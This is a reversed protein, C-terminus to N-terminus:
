CSLDCLAELQPFNWRERPELAVIADKAQPAGLDMLELPLPEQSRTSYFVRVVPKRADTAPTDIVVALRGSALRVLSGAPYVGVARIFVALMTRDLHGQVSAMEKLAVAPDWATKYARASTMADFVDCVAVIRALPSMQEGELQDPYGTGDVREHHHLCADLVDADRFGAERLLEHGLRSHDRLLAWEAANLRGPKNLVELPVRSKGVDHLLAALGVSRCRAVDMGIEHAMAVAMACVSLSHMCTYDDKSKLHALCLMAGKRRLVSEVIGTVVPRLAEIDPAKGFRADAFLATVCARAQKRLAQARRMEDALSVPKGDAPAPGSPGVPAKAADVPARAAEAVVEAGLGQAPDIWCWEAGAGVVVALQEANAIRYNRRWGAHDLWAGDFRVLFMGVRLDRVPIKQLTM